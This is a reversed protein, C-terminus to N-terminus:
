ENLLSQILAVAEASNWEAPGIVRKRLIGKKDVVYTEPVGTVGFNKASIGNDDVFVPLTYGNAKLYELGNNPEDKYLITIMTFGSDNLHGRYLAEISPMEEKCPPCWSAWFNIFVVKGKLTNPDVSGGSIDRIVLEPVRLGEVAAFKERKCAIPLLCMVVIIVLSFLVDREKKQRSKV